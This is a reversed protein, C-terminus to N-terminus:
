RGVGAGLMLVNRNLSEYERLFVLLIRLFTFVLLGQSVYAIAMLIGDKALLRIVVRGM